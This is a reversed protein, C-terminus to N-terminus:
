KDQIIKLTLKFIPDSYLKFIIQKTEDEDIPYLNGDIPLGQGYNNEHFIANRINRINDLLLYEENNIINQNKAETICKNFNGNNKDLSYKLVQESLIFLCAIAAFYNREQFSLYAENCLSGLVRDRELIKNILESM